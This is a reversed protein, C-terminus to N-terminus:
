GREKRYAQWVIGFENKNLFYDGFSIGDDYVGNIIEWKSYCDKDEVWVPKGEMQKLESWTLPDNRDEKTCRLYSDAYACAICNRYEKLYHLADIMYEHSLFCDEEWEGRDVLNVNEQCAKIVEDLTKM